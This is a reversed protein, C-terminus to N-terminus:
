SLLVRLRVAPRRRVAVVPRREGPFAPSSRELQRLQRGARSGAGTPPKNAPVNDPIGDKVSAVRAEAVAFVEAGYGAYRRNDAPDGKTFSGAESTRVFDIAFREPVLARGGFALWSRRHHTENSPGNVAVWRDGRLPPRLRVPHGGVAISRYEVTLPQPDEGLKGLVLHRIATPVEDLSLWFLVVVHLGPGIMTPHGAALGSPKVAKALEDGELVALRGSGWVEVRVLTVPKSGSNTLHLEYVLVNRGDARVPIPATPLNVLLPLGVERGLEQAFSFASLCVLLPLAITSIRVRVAM